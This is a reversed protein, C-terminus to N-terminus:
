ELGWNERVYRAMDAILMERTPYQPGVDAPKDTTIDVFRWLGRQVKRYGLITPWKTKLIM